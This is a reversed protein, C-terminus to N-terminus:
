YNVRVRMFTAFRPINNKTKGTYKYIITSGIPPPTQREKDSFGTGIKFRIGDQTKVLLAGLMGTYKGKGPVYGMVTADADNFKKLKMLQKSRKHQYLADEHHLVLGEGKASVISDLLHFLETSDSLKKQEIMHLYPNDCDRVLQRMRVVRQSFPLTSHPLDFIMFKVRKWDANQNNQTRVIGSVTEFHNRAIWLEGDLPTDPFGDTFWSPAMFPTGQKSYLQKGDWYGRIGDLKESVFYPQIDVGQRFPTAIEIAPAQAYCVPIFFIFLCYFLTQHLLLTFLTPQSERTASVLM